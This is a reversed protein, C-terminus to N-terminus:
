RSAATATSPGCRATPGASRPASRRRCRLLGDHRPRRLEGVHVAARVELVPQGCRTSASARCSSRTRPRAARAAGRPLVAAQACRGARSSTRSRSSSAGARSAAGGPSTDAQDEGNALKRIKVLEEIVLRCDGVIPVDPRRVKGQEAPDIDVHIVKAEPAFTSVKGTVRDDFRSGLAVLLDAKQLSTVATYNGHMGPMGLCLPHEDPFAGRAMLTTVVHIRHARRARAADAARAKLIGGGVYLVPRESSLILQGGGQDDAPPGQREAQLRPPRGVRALVVGDRTPARGEPRRRARAPGAPRRSTSRRRVIRPIDQRGNMLWNHKTVPDHHRGHRVGPLCRHRHGLHPGPRHHWWRSPTWTPTACRRSSTRRRRAARSWRWVRAPRHRPRLGRGHPRRGARPARPHPPDVLRAAPRLGAPHVRGPLGFMVEVGEMELSKILAQAGTLKM